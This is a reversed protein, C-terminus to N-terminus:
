QFPIARICILDAPKADDGDPKVEPPLSHPMPSKPLENPSNPGPPQPEKPPPLHPLPPRPGFTQRGIKLKVKERASLEKVDRRLKRPNPAPCMLERIGNYILGPADAADNGRALSLIKQKMNM